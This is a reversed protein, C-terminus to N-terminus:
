SSLKILYKIMKRFKDNNAELLTLGFGHKMQPHNLAALAEMRSKKCGGMVLHVVRGIEEEDLGFMWPPVDAQPTDEEERETNQPTDAILGYEAAVDRLRADNYGYLELGRHKNMQSEHLFCRIIESSQGTVKVLRKVLHDSVKKPMKGMWAPETTDNPFLSFLAAEVMSPDRSVLAHYIPESLNEDLTEEIMSSRLGRRENILKLLAKRTEESLGSFGPFASAANEQSSKQQTPRSRGRTQSHTQQQQQEYLSALYRQQEENSWDQEQQRNHGHSVGHSGYSSSGHGHGYYSSSGYGEGEHESDGSLHMSSFDDVFASSPDSYVGYNSSVSSSSDEQYPMPVVYTQQGGQAYEHGGHHGDYYQSPDQESAHGEHYRPNNSRFNKGRLKGLRSTMSGTDEEYDGRQPRVPRSTELAAPGATERSSKTRVKLGSGKFM